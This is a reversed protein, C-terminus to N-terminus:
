KIIINQPIIFKDITTYPKEHYSRRYEQNNDDYYSAIITAQKKRRDFNNKEKPIYKVIGAFRLNVM